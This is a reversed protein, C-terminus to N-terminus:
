SAGSSTYKQQIESIKRKLYHNDKIDGAVKKCANTVAAADRNGLEKGIQALSYNTEQRILYMAVKRALATEKDRKQGRLDAPTLQFCDAIIDILVNPTTTTSQPEKCAIDELARNALDITPIAGLLKAYAIVRNLSGELERVNRKVQRAIVELVDASIEVQRQRAKDQLISMRTEFDPPKIDVILGWEFRSRLRDALRPMAKPSCNSTIVIQRNANHLENFTHFFNEETQEKGGFFNVDDILLM